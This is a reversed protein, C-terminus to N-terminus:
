LINTTNKIIENISDIDDNDFLSRPNKGEEMLDKFPKLISKEESALKEYVLNVVERGWNAVSKGYYLGDIGAKIIDDKGEIIDQYTVAEFIKYLSDLLEEDYFIGKLLAVISFNYPYPLADMMRIEIFGKTRVDPFVMTMMHELEKKTYNEPDFLDKMKAEKTPLFKGDKLILIPPVELVFEAYNKYSFNDELSRPVTGCRDKDMNNWILTRLSKEKFKEGEFFYSNDCIGYMIPALANALRVKKRYDEEDSYDLSVQLSATGKMMNHAYKGKDKFYDFMYDYREKPLIKIEDIKTKPHYGVAVISQNNEKLIVKIEEMFELYEKKLSAIDLKANISFEFQSGPELTVVKDGKEAGLIYEGEYMGQWGNAELRWLIDRVGNKDWYTVTEMTDNSVIFHEFEVGIKFNDRSKEKGRLYKDIEDIQKEYNYKM